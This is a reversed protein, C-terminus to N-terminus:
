GRERMALRAALGRDSHEYAHNAACGRDSLRYVKARAAGRDTRDYRAYRAVGKPTRDYRAFRAKGKPSADYRKRIAARTARCEFWTKGLRKGYCKTLLFHSLPFRRRHTRCFRM